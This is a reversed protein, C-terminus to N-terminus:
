LAQQIISTTAAHCKIWNAEKEINRIISQAYRLGNVFGIREDESFEKDPHSLCSDIETQLIDIYESSTLIM